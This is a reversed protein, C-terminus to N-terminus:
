RRSSGWVRAAAGAGRLRLEKSIGRSELGLFRGGLFCTTITREVAESRSLQQQQVSSAHPPHTCQTKPSAETELQQQQQQEQGAGVGAVGAGLEVMESEPQQQQQKRARASVMMDDYSRCPKGIGGASWKAWRSEAQCVAVTGVITADTETRSGSRHFEEAINPAEVRDQNKEQERRAARASEM